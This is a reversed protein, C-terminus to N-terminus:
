NDRSANIEREIQDLEASTHLCSLRVTRVIRGEKMSMSCESNQGWRTYYCVFARGDIDDNQAFISTVMAPRGFCDIARDGPKLNKIEDRTPVHYTAGPYRTTSMVAREYSLEEAEFILSNAEARKKKIQEKRSAAVASEDANKIARGWDGLAIRVRYGMTRLKENDM